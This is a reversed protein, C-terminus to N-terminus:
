IAELEILQKQSLQQLQIGAKAPIVSTMYKTTPVIATPFPRSREMWDLSKTFLRLPLARSDHPTLGVKEYTAVVLSSACRLM